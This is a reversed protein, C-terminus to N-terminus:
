IFWRWTKKCATPRTVWCGIRKEVRLVVSEAAYIEIVIDAINMIIEQEDSLKMMFRQVAAGAIMLAAKKLNKIVKKEAAFVADDEEAPRFRSYVYIEKGVATAPGMLDLQGKM